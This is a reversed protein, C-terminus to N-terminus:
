VLAPRASPLRNRKRFFPEYSLSTPPLASSQVDRKPSQVSLVGNTVKYAVFAADEPTLRNTFKIKVDEVLARHMLKANDPSIEETTNNELLRINV